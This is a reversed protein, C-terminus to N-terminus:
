AGRDNARNMIKVIGNLHHLQEEIEMLRGKHNRARLTM